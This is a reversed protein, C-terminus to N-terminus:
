FINDYSRLEIFITHYAIKGYDFNKNSFKEFNCKLILVVKDETSLSACQAQSLNLKQRM